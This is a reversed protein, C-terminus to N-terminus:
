IVIAFAVVCDCNQINTNWAQQGGYKHVYKHRIYMMNTTAIAWFEHIVEFLSLDQNNFTLSVCNGNPFLDGDLQKTINHRECHPPVHKSLSCRSSEM